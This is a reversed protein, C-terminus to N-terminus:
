GGAKKTRKQKLSEIETILHNVWVDIEKDVQTFFNFFSSQNNFQKIKSGDSKVEGKYSKM